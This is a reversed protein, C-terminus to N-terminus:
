ANDGGQEGGPRPAMMMEVECVIHLTKHLTVSSHTASGGYSEPRWAGFGKAIVVSHTELMPCGQGVTFADAHGLTLFATHVVTGRAFGGIWTCLGDLGKEPEPALFPCGSLGQAPPCDRDQDPNAGLCM